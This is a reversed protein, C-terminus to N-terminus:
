EILARANKATSFGAGPASDEKVSASARIVRRSTRRFLAQVDITPIWDVADQLEPM